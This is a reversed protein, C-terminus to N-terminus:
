KDGSRKLGLKGENTVECATRRLHYGRQGGTTRRERVAVGGHAGYGVVITGIPAM